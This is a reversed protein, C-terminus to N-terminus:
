LIYKVVMEYSIIHTSCCMLHLRSYADLFVRKLLRLYTKVKVTSIKVKKSIDSESDSVDTDSM